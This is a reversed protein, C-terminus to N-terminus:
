YTDRADPRRRKLYDSLQRRVDDITGTNDILFSAYRKMEEDSLQNSIINDIKQTTYGRSSILRDVRTNYDAYVVWLEDIFDLYHAQILIASEVIILDYDQRKYEDILELIRVRVLPHTLFNLASLKDPDSFVIGALKSRDIPNGAGASLIETGFYEVVAEYSSQGPQMLEKAVDDAMIVAANYEEKLIQLITSKGTGVGGTIGVIM